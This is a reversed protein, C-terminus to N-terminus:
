VKDLDIDFKKAMDELVDEETHKVKYVYYIRARGNLSPNSCGSMIIWM